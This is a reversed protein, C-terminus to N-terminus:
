QVHPRLRELREAGITWPADTGHIHYTSSGLYLARVGLPNLRHGGPVYAPLTPNARRMDATPTWDPNVRKETVTMEGVWEAGDKPGAIPYSIARNNTLVYYLKRDAFSVIITGPEAKTQFAILQRGSSNANATPRGKFMDFLGASADSPLMASAAVLSAFSVAVKTVKSFKMALGRQKVMGQELSLCPPQMRIEIQTFPHRSSNKQFTPIPWKHATEGKSLGEGQSLIPSLILVFCSRIRLKHGHTVVNWAAFADPLAGRANLSCAPCAAFTEDLM